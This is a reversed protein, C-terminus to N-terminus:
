ITTNNYTVNNKIIKSPVGYAVVNDPVDKTVVSGAGIVTNNGIKIHDLITAGMGIQCNEGIEIHGAINVGPNISTNNGIITHHGISVNRNIFVNDGIITKGAITCKPNIVCGSGIKSTNSVFSDDSIVTSLNELPIDFKNKLISRTQSKGSGYLYKKNPDFLFENNVTYSVDPNFIGDRNYINLNDIIEFETDNSMDFLMTIYGESFGLITIKKTGM